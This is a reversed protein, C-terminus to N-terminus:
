EGNMRHEFGVRDGLNERSEVEDAQLCWGAEGRDGFHVPDPRLFSSNEHGIGEHHSFCALYVAVAKTGYDLYYGGDVGPLLSPFYKLPAGNVVGHVFQM